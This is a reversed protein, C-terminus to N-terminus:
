GGAVLSRTRTSSPSHRTLCRGIFFLCPLCRTPTASGWPTTALSRAAGQSIKEYALSRRPRSYSTTTHPSSGTSVPSKVIVGRSPISASAEHSVMMTGPTRAGVPGIRISSREASRSASRRPARRALMQVPAKIRAAAPRSLSRRAVVWQAAASSSARSWGETSTSGSTRQTSSPRIRVDAPAAAPRSRHRCRTRSSWPSSTAACVARIATIGSVRGPPWACNM